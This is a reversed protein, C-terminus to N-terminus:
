EGRRFDAASTAPVASKKLEARVFMGPILRVPDNPILVELKGLRTSPDVFPYLNSVKGLFTDPSAAVHIRVEQGLRVYPMKNESIDLIAKIKSTESFICIAPAQPSSGALIYQGPDMLRRGILGDFPARIKTYGLNIQARKLRVKAGRVAARAIQKEESRPGEQVLILTQDAAAMQSRAAELRERARDLTQTTTGGSTSLKQAREYEQSALRLTSRAADRRAEAVSREAPRGGAEMAKLRAQTAELDAEAQEVDLQYLDPEITALVQGKHFRQGEVFRIEELQGGVRAQVKVQRYTVLGGTLHLQGPGALVVLPALLIALAPLYKV